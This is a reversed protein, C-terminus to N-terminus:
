SGIISSRETPPNGSGGLLNRNMQTKFVRKDSIRNNEYNYTDEIGHNGDQSQFKDKAANTTSRASECQDPLRYNCNQADVNVTMYNRQEDLNAALALM